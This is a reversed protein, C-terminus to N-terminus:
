HRTLRNTAPLIYELLETKHLLALRSITKGSALIKHLEDVFLARKFYNQIRKKIRQIAELSATYFQLTLTTRL